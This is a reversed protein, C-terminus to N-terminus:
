CPDYDPYSSLRLAENFIAHALETEGVLKAQQYWYEVLNPDHMMLANIKPNYWENTQKFRIKKQEDVEKAKEPEGLSAYAVQQLHLGFTQDLLTNANQAIVEGSSICLQAFDAREVSLEKCMNFLKTPSNMNLAAAFGVSLTLRSGAHEYGNVEIARDFMKISDYWYSTYRTSIMLQTLAGIVGQINNQESEYLAKQYWVAGNTPDLDIAKEFAEIACNESKANFLCSSLLQYNLHKNAPVKNSLESLRTYQSDLQQWDNVLAFAFQSNFDQNANFQKAWYEPKDVDQNQAYSEFYELAVDSDCEKIYDNLRNNTINSQQPPLYV